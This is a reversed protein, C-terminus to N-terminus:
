DGDLAKNVADVARSLHGLLVVGNEMGCVRYLMNGTLDGVVVVSRLEGSRALELADELAKVVQEDPKSNMDTLQTVNGTM